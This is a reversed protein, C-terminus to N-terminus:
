QPFFFQNNGGLGLIIKKSGNSIADKILEGTGFSTTDLPNRKEKPVLVLGSANAM